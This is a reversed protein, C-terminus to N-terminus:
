KKPVNYKLCHTLVADKWKTINRQKYQETEFVPDKYIDLVGDMVIMLDNQQLIPVVTTLPINNQHAKAITGTFEARAICDEITMAQLVPSVLLLGILLKNM